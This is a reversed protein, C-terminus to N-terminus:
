ASAIRRSNMTKTPGRSYVTKAGKAAAELAAGELGGGVGVAQSLAKGGLKLSADSQVAKLHHQQIVHAIEHALVGALEDENRLRLLLGKTIFIYGGPAAFANIDNDDLVAFRWPLQPRSSQLAVWLGVKNIYQQVERNDLLRVAGLLTAAMGKGIEREQAEDPKTTADNILKAGEIVDGIGGPLRFAFASSPLLLCALLLAWLNVRKM